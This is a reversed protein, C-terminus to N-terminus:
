LPLKSITHRKLNQEWEVYLTPESPAAVKARNSRRLYMKVWYDYFYDLDQKEQETHGDVSNYVVTVWRDQYSITILSVAQRHDLFAGIGRLIQSISYPDPLNDSHARKAREQADLNEIETQSYSLEFPQNAKRRSRGGRVIDRVFQIISFTAALDAPATGHITYVGERRELNFANFKFKEFAQGVARLEKAYLTGAGAERPLTIRVVEPAENASSNPGHEKFIRGWAAM